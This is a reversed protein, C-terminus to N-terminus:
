CAKRKAQSVYLLSNNGFRKSFIHALIVTGAVPSQSQRSNRFVSTEESQIHDMPEQKTSQSIPLQM